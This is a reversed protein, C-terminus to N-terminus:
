YPRVLEAPEKCTQAVSVYHICQKTMLLSSDMTDLPWLQTKGSTFDFDLRRRVDM